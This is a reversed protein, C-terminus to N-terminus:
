DDDGSEIARNARRIDALAYGNRNTGERYVQCTKVGHTKLGRTLSTEDMSDYRSGYVERLRGILIHAQVKPEDGPWVSAVDDLVTVTITVEPDDGAAMGRLTGADMRRQRGIACAKEYEAPTILDTRAYQLDGGAGTSVGGIVCAGKHDELFRDSRFGKASIYAGLIADSSQPTKTRLAIRITTIDRLDSPVVDTGPRQTILIVSVGAKPAVKALWVLVRLGAKALQKNDAKILNQIEDVVVVHPRMGQTALERTLKDEPCELNSLKRFSALRARTEAQIQELIAVARILDEEEDGALYNVAIQSTALWDRGGGCDIVTVDCYPDLVAPTVVAKAAYSKGSRPVAGILFSCFLLTTAVVQGVPTMAIPNRDWVSVKPLRALPSRHARLLMPDEDAVYIRVRRTSGAVPTIFVQSEEVDFGSALRDLAAAADGATSGYPLDVLIETGRGNASRAIPGALTARTDERLLGGDRDYKPPDGALRAARLARQVIADTIERYGPSALMAPALVPRGDTTGARVLGGAAAVLAIAWGQPALYRRALLVAVGAVVLAGAVVLLRAKVRDSRDERLKTFAEVDAKTGGSLQRELADSRQDTAWCFVWVIVVLLGRLARLALFVPYAPLRIAHFAAQHRKVRWWRSITARRGEPSLVWGPVIPRLDGDKVKVTARVTRPTSTMAMGTAPEHHEAVTGGPTVQDPVGDGDVDIDVHDPEDGGQSGGGRRFPIVSGTM